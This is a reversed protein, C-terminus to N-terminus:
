LLLEDQIEKVAEDIKIKSVELGDIDGQVGVLKINVVFLEGEADIWIEQENLGDNASLIYVM